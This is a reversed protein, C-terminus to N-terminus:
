LIVQNINKEKEKGNTLLWCEAADTDTWNWKRDENNFKKKLLHSNSNNKLWKLKLKSLTVVHKM